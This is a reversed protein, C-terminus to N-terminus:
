KFFIVNPMKSPFQSTSDVFLAFDCFGYFFLISLVFLALNTVIIRFNNTVSLPRHRRGKTSYLVNYVHAM